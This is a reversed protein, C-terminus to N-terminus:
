VIDVYYWTVAVRKIGKTVVQGSHPYCWNSPFILGYGAKPKFTAYPFETGGGEFGDNLYLVISIARHYEIAQKDVHQDSHFNYKQNESYQLVQISERWSTTGIGGPVPYYKFTDSIKIVRKRYELLANNMSEHIIKTVEHDKKLYVGLSSRVSTDVKNDEKGLLGNPSFELTDLHNNIKQLKDEDLFKIIQILENM